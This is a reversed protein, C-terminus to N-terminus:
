AGAVLTLNKDFELKAVAEKDVPKVDFRTILRTDYSNRTFAKGGVDTSKIELENLEYVRVAEKLDGIYLPFKNATENPLHTNPLVIVEKGFLTRKTPDTVVPQLLYNGNKDKLSDLVNFGDQNTLVKTNDLFIPDLTVNFAEKIEDVKTIAKKTLTKLVAIIEKNETVVQKKMFWKGLYALLNEPSDQLLYRSVPLIGGFNKVKYNIREFVEANIEQIEGLETIDTLGTLQTTKEYVESGSPVVVSRVDVYDKLSIFSRRYENIATRVDEPVLYGGNEGESEKLPGAANVIGSKIYNKVAVLGTEEKQEEHLDVVKDDHKLSILNQIQNIEETYGKIEEMLSNALEKDGNNIANEAATVKEAKLQMLERLKKNVNM